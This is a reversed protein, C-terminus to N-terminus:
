TPRGKPRWRALAQRLGAQELLQAMAQVAPAIMADVRKQIEPDSTKQNLGARLDADQVGNERLMERLAENEIEVTRLLAALFVAFENESL